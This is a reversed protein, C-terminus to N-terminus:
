SEDSEKSENSWLSLYYDQMFDHWDLVTGPNLKLSIGGKENQWGVGVYQSDKSDPVRSKMKLVFDPKRGYNNSM